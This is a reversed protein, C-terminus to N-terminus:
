VARLMRVEDISSSNAVRYTEFRNRLLLISLGLCHETRVLVTKLVNPQHAATARWLVFSPTYDRRNSCPKLVIGYQRFHYLSTRRVRKGVEDTCYTICFAAKSHLLLLM